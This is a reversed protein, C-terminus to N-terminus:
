FDAPLNEVFEAFNACVDSLEGNARWQNIENNAWESDNLLNPREAADSSPNEIDDCLDVVDEPTQKSNEPLERLENELADVHIKLSRVRIKLKSIEESQKKIQKTKPTAEEEGVFVVSKDAEAEAEAEISESVEIVENQDINPAPGNSYNTANQVTECNM